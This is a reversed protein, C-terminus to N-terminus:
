TNSVGIIPLASLEVKGDPRSTFEFLDYRGTGGWLAFQSAGVYSSDWSVDSGDLSHVLKIKFQVGSPLGTATGNYVPAAIVTTLRDLDIEIVGNTIEPTATATGSVQAYTVRLNKATVVGTGTVAGLGTLNYGGAASDGGWTALAAAVENWDTAHIIEGDTRTASPWAM